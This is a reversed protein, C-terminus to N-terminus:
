CWGRCPVRKWPGGVPLAVSVTYGARSFERPHALAYKIVAPPLVPILTLRNGNRIRYRFVAKGHRFTRADLIRYPGDDVPRLNWDLSGFQGDRTFYHSHVRPIAGECIDSKAALEAPSGEVLGNGSLMTPALAVLGYRDLSQVFQQCTTVKQWRGVLPPQSADRANPKASTSAAGLVALAVVSVLVLHTRRLM